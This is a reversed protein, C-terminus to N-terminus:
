DEYVVRLRVQVENEDAGEGELTITDERGDTQGPAEEDFSFTRTSIMVDDSTTPDYDFLVVRYDERLDRVEFGGDVDWVLPFDSTRVDDYWAQDPNSVNIVFEDDRPNLVDSGPDGVYDEDAYFLRFYIEPGGAGAGDWQAGNVDVLPGDDIQVATVVATRPTGGNSGSDCATLLLPAGVLLARLTTATPRM